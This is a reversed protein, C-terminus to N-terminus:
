GRQAAWGRYEGAILDEIEVVQQALTEEDAAGNLLAQQMILEQAAVAYQRALRDYRGLQTWATAVAAAASFLGVLRPMTPQAILVIAAAAAAGRAVLGVWVWFQGRRRNADARERYYTTQDAVRHRLYHVKRADYPLDRIREMEPSIDQPDTPVVTFQVLADEHVKLLSRFADIIGARASANDGDFPKIHMMYRWSLAKVDEAMSRSTAWDGGPRLVEVALKVILTAVLLVASLIALWQAVAHSQLSSAVTSVAAALVLLLLDAQTLRRQLRQAALAGADLAVYLAPYNPADLSARDLSSLVVSGSSAKRVVM